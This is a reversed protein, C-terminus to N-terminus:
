QKMDRTCSSILLKPSLSWLPGLSVNSLEFHKVVDTCVM